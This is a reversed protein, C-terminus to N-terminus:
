KTKAIFYRTVIPGIIEFVLTTGLVVPLILETDKLVQSAMLAMGIAVGAQPILAFGLYKQITIDAHTYKAAILTGVYFSVVRVIIYIAAIMGIHSFSELHLSAGAFLFFLVMFPWEINEIAHFPRKHHKAFTAVASGMAMTALISSLEFMVALGCVVFVSGLAEVMVPEGGSLRGTIKAIPYGLIFGLILSGFVEFFGHFLTDYWSQSVGISVFSLVLSFLLLALIDDFAVVRLLTKTFRNHLKLEHIIEYIAAPATASAISALVLAYAFSVGAMYLTVSLLVFSFGVKSLAIIFTQKGMNQLAKLTFQQGILFGIMGLSITTITEFWNDVFTQHFFGLLNPGLVVGIIILFSVRPLATKSGLIDSLLGLLFIIGILLLTNPEFM